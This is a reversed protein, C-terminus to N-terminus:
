SNNPKKPNQLREGLKRWAPPEAEGGAGRRWIELALAGTRWKRVGRRGRVLPVWKKEGGRLRRWCVGGKGGAPSQHATLFVAGQKADRGDEEEDEGEADQGEPPTFVFAARRPPPMASAAGRVSKWIIENLALDDAADEQALNMARSAKGGWATKLNREDLNGAAPRAQYPTLDPQAQFSAFMPMAAADFQSMPALGLILEMTRLMSSTSYMTSDVAGRRIYPSIAFAITRHADVHDPGNQADDEVVFIAM